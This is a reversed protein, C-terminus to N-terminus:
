KQVRWSTKSPNEDVDFYEQGGQNHSPVHGNADIPARREILAIHTVFCDTTTLRVRRTGGVFRKVSM